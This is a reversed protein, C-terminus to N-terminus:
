GTLRDRNYGGFSRVDTSGSGRRENDNGTFIVPAVAPVPAVTPTPLFTDGLNTVVGTQTVGKADVYKTMDYNKQASQMLIVNDGTPLKGMLNGSADYGNAFALNNKPNTYVIGTNLNFAGDASMGGGGLGSIGARALAPVTALFKTMYGTYSDIGAVKVDSNIAALQVDRANNSQITGLALNNAGTNNMSAMLTQIASNFDTVGGGVGGSPVAQTGNGTAYFLPAPPFPGNTAATASSDTAPTAGQSKVYLYGGVGLVGLLAYLGYKAILANM